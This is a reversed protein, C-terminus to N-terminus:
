TGAVTQVSLYGSCFQPNFDSCTEQMETLELSIKLFDSAYDKLLCFGRPLNIWELQM